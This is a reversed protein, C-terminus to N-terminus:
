SGSGTLEYVYDNPKKGGLRTPEGSPYDKWALSDPYFRNWDCAVVRHAIKWEGNRREMRDLYRGALIYELYGGKPQKVKHFAQFYSEV